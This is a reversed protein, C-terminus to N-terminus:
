WAVIVSGVVPLAYPLDDEKSMGPHQAVQKSCLQGRELLLVVSFQWRRGRAATVVFHYFKQQLLTYARRLVTTSCTPYRQRASWM